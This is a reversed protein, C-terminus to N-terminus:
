GCALTQPDGSVPLLAALPESERRLPRGEAEAFAACLRSEVAEAGARAANHRSSVYGGGNGHRLAAPDCLGARGLVTAPGSHLGPVFTGPAHAPAPIGNARKPI